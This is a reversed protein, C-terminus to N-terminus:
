PRSYSEVAEKMARANLVSANAPFEWGPALIFGGGPAMEELVRRCENRVLDPNGLYLYKIPQVYGVINVKDRWKEKADPWSDCGDPVWACSIAEPAMTEIHADFYLGVGSSHAWVALGCDRATSALRRVYVGETDLWLKKNMMVRACFLTEIWIGYIGTKALIRIYDELVETIVVLAHHVQEPYQICDAMLQEPGRMISLVGLPGYVFGLIPLEKGKESALVDCARIQETMREGRAPDFRRIKTLFDDPTEILPQSYDPEPPDDESFRLKQGFDAAEVNLDITTLMVDFDLLDHALMLSRAVIEGDQSWESFAAGYVRRSAGGILPTWPVRDTEQKKFATSIRQYSNMDIFRFAPPRDSFFVPHHGNIINFHTRSYFIGPGTM